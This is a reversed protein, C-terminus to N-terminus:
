CRWHTCKTTRGIGPNFSNSPDLKKYFEVMPASAKYHHGVNHEAPYRVGRQDLLNLMESEIQEADHGKRVIYDQHFVHCFFHGYYLKHSVGQEINSPLSEFWNRENRPLAIDLAIMGNVKSDSLARYRIAASAAAFRNLSARRGEDQTCKFWEGKFAASLYREAEDIGQDSMTLILHHEFKNRFARVRKPIQNPFLGSAFQLFRDTFALRKLGLKELIAEFRSKLQFLVPISSTGLHYIMLFIDKGYKVAMDYAERHLYEASVPLAFFRALMERRLDTFHQPSNTGLYYTQTRGPKPFTDLRVAFVIVRGACGSAEFLKSEDGNFRAPTDADIDRVLNAYDTASAVRKGKPALDQDCYTGSDLRQLIEVPDSGLEIGLHNVLTLGGDTGLRAFLALETYAPGRQILAGGSNNSVGGIVSAGICSSGIVSHPDRGLKALDRELQELTAGPFCIAEEGGKLPQIKNMRLTNIIVIDRDYNNGDPTSGGTLGTNAAQVIVIKNAEACACLVYWQEILSGPRVVALVNGGGYRFGTRYARTRHDSILLHKRGVLVELKALLANNMALSRERITAGISKEAVMIKGM